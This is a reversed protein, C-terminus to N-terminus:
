RFEKLFALSRRLGDEVDGPLEYEILAPGDYDGLAAMLKPWDLRGEGCAAPLVGGEVSRFDKM